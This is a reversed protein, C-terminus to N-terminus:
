LNLSKCLLKTSDVLSLSNFSTATELEACQGSSGDTSHIWYEVKDGSNLWSYYLYQDDPSLFIEIRLVDPPGVKRGSLDSYLIIILLPLLLIVTINNIFSSHKPYLFKSWFLDKCHVM